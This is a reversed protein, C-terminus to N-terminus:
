FYMPCCRCYLGGGGVGGGLSRGPAHKFSPTCQVVGACKVSSTCQVVDVTCGGVGWGVGWLDVLHMNLVLLVNSLVQVNSM